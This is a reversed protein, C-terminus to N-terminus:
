FSTMCAPCLSTCQTAPCVSATYSRAAGGYRDVDLGEFLEKLWALTRPDAKYSCNEETCVIGSSWSQQTGKSTRQLPQITLSSLASGITSGRVQNRKQYSKSVDSSGSNHSSSAQYHSRCRLSHATSIPQRTLLRGPNAALPLVM